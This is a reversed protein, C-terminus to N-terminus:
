FFSIATAFTFLVPLCDLALDPSCITPPAAAPAAAPENTPGRPAATPATTPPIAPAFALSIASDFGMFVNADAVFTVTLLANFAFDAFFARVLAGIALLNVLFFREADVVFLFGAVFAAFCQGGLRPALELLRCPTAPQFCVARCGLSM